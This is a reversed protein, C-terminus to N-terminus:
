VHLVQPPVRAAARGAAAAIARREEDRVRQGSHDARVGLLRGHKWIVQPVMVSLTVMLDRDDGCRYISVYVHMRIM